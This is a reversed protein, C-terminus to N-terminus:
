VGEKRRSGVRWRVGGERGELAVEEGNGEHGKGGGIEKSELEM